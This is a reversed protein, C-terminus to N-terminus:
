FEVVTVTASIEAIHTGAMDRLLLPPPPPHGNSFALTKPWQARLPSLRRGERM